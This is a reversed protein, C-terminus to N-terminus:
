QLEVGHQSLISDFASFLNEWSFKSAEKKLQAKASPNFKLADDIAMAFERATRGFLAHPSMKALMGYPVSVVPLGSAVYEYFKLPREM